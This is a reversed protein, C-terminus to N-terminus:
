RRSPKKTFHMPANPNPLTRKRKPKATGGSVGALSSMPTDAIMKMLKPKVLAIPMWTPNAAQSILIMLSQALTQLTTPSNLVVRMALPEALPMISRHQDSAESIDDLTRASPGSESVTASTTDATGCPTTNEKSGSTYGILQALPNSIKIGQYKKRDAKM